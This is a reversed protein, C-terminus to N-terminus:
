RRKRRLVYAAFACFAMGCLLVISSPEPVIAADYHAKIRTGSLATDYIAGEDIRGDNTRTSAGGAASGIWLDDNDQWPAEDGPGYTAHWAGGTLDGDIYGKISNSTGFTYTMAVHHWGSTDVFGNSTTSNWVHWNNNTSRYAFNLHVKGDDERVRLAYNQNVSGSVTRGKSVVHYENQDTIEDLDVWAELTIHDGNGFDLVSNTGPDTVAVYDGNGDFDAASNTSAFGPFSAPRPGAFNLNTNGYTTGDINSGSGSNAVATGSTESLRWWAIPSDASVASIYDAFSQGGALFAMVFCVILIWMVRQM